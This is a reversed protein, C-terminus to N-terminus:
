IETDIKQCYNNHASKLKVDNHGNNNNNDDICDVDDVDINTGNFM